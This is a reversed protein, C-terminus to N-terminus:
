SIYAEAELMDILFCASRYELNQGVPRVPLGGKFEISLINLCFFMSAGPVSGGVGLLTELGGKAKIARSASRAM